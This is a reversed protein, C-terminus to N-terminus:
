IGKIKAIIEDESFVAGGPAGLFEVSSKGNVDLKVDEVMQGMNLEAVLIKKSKAAVDSIVKEPFPWLTIPRIM